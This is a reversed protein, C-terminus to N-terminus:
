RLRRVRRAFFAVFDISGTRECEALLIRTILFGSIVFFVDVGVFGGRVSPLACHYAVIIAVAIGRLGDIYALYSKDSTKVSTGWVASGSIGAAGDAFDLGRVGDTPSAAARGDSFSM